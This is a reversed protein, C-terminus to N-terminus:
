RSVTGIPSRGDLNQEAEIGVTIRRSTVMDM